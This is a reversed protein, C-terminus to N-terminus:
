QELGHWKQGDWYPGVWMPNGDKCESYIMSMIVDNRQGHFLVKSCHRRLSEPTTEQGMWAPDHYVLITAMGLKAEEVTLPDIVLASRYLPVIALADPHMSQIIPMDETLWGKLISAGMKALDAELKKAKSLAM